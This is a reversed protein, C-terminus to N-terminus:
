FDYEIFNRGQFDYLKNRIYVARSSAEIEAIKKHDSGIVVTKNDKYLFQMNRASHYLRFYNNQDLVQTVEFRENVTVIFASDTIIYMDYPNLVDIPYFGSDVETFFEDTTFSKLKGHVKPDLTCEVNLFGDHMSYGSIKDRWLCIVMEDGTLYDTIAEKKDSLDNMFVQEGNNLQFAAFFPQGFFVMKGEKFAYGKNLVYVLSDAIFIDSKSAKKRPLEAYWITKLEPDLRTLKDRSAFFYGTSDSWVNSCLDSVLSYGTNYSYYGTLVGVLVGAATGVVAATYDKHGTEASFDWGSGNELDVIHLGASQILLLSDTLHTIDNWGYERNVPRSWLFKGDTLRYAELTTQNQDPPYVLGIGTYQDLYFLQRSLKWQKKGTETNLRVAKNADALIIIDSYQLISSTGFSINKHWKVADRTLDYLVVMGTGRPANDQNVKGTQVTLHNRMTDLYFGQIKEPFVWEKAKIETHNIFNQGATKTNTTITIPQQAYSFALSLSLFFIGQGYKLCRHKM